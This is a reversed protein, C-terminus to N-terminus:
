RTTWDGGTKRIGECLVMPVRSVDPVALRKGGTTGGACEWMTGVGYLRAWM